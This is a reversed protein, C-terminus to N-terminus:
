AIVQNADEIVNWNNRFSEVSSYPCLGRGDERTITIPVGGFGFAHSENVLLTYTQGKRYGLSDEGIFIARIKM